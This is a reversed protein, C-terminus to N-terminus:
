KCTQLFALLDALERRSLVEAFGAPMVSIKSPRIEEIDSRALWMARDPGTVLEIRDPTEQKILGNYSIGSRDQVVVPEYSRVISASPFVISELLDRQTRITAIRTLDPGVRGGLYGIAHCSACATKASHFVAQGRRADGVPLQKNIQDLKKAQRALDANIRLYLAAAAKRVSDPYKALRPEIMDIRLSTLLDYDRLAGALALGVQEDTTQQFATLLHDVDAPGPAPLARCLSLLEEKTLKARAIADVAAGREALPADRKLFRSAYDFLDSNLSSAPAPIAALASLRTADPLSKDAAIKQLAAGLPESRGQPISAHRVAQLIASILEPSGSELLRTLEAAWRDPLQRLGSRDIVGLLLTKTAASTKASTLEDAVLSQVAPASALRALLSQLEERAAAPRSESGALEGRFYDALKDGWDPHRGAIWLLTAMLEADDTNLRSVVQDATLHKGPMQDLATLAARLVQPNNGSLGQRAIADPDNLEILAYTIAHHLFRDAPEQAAKLLPGIAAPDGARGLAEAAVRRNLPTGTELVRELDGVAARDRWLSVVNLATQRVDADPDNLAGRVALRAGAGNMRALTWLTNRRAEASNAKAGLRVCLVQLRSSETNAFTDIARRRVAPRPDDFLAALQIADLSTWKIQLGRPDDIRPAGIRRIRYIAGLVDPKQLQSTPCCIKYWGGTDVVLLSGDADEVVDTPHFDLNDSVLFDEDRSAYTAGHPTLVHRSVKHMNFQCAFLNNAYEPGFATSEYRALGCPAAAGMHTLVPMVNPGTWPFNMIVDHVKGYVAGHVAHILGDRLGFAPDQFFTTTFFREGNPLFAVAVPNDMGGTMVSEIGSGDPRSRFIHAARTILPPQGRRQYEQQAFAGKCWYIWGDPGLYPGHLDNACHTLTKGAFWEGRQDATGSGTTDTLKWISPPAAVYLSGGRWMTGEPFMIRDAFVSSKDFKGTGTTDELRVIRHSPHKLQQEVDENSGSSDAVYLRGQEDFDATIPRPALESSAALTIEFDAPLTFAHGNLRVVHTHAPPASHIGLSNVAQNGDAALCISVLASVSFATAAIRTHM